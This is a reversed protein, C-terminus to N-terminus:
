HAHALGMERRQPQDGLALSPNQRRKVGGRREVIQTLRREGDGVKGVVHADKGSAERSTAVPRQRGGCKDGRRTQRRGQRVEFENDDLHAFM